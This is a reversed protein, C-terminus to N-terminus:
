NVYNIRLLIAVAPYYIAVNTIEGIGEQAIDALMFSFLCALCAAIVSRNREDSSGFYETVGTKLINFYLICTILLGVWGIELTTKLYGNDTQVDALPHGPNFKVGAGNTTAIGGGIPHTYIYPQIAKRNVERVLYSADGKGEFTSRFRNLTANGYYPVKVAFLLLMAAVAAFIRTQKKDAHLLVYIGVGAVLMINSTRTGSYTSALIMIVVGPYYLMKRSRRTENLALILFLVATAAMDMGFATPSSTTSYKRIQGAFFLAGANVRQVFRQEFPLLGYWQQFCGYLAVILSVWFLVFLYQDIRKRSDFVHYAAFFLLFTETTARFGSFWGPFSHALPNFMEILVYGYLVLTWIMVPTRFLHASAQRLSDRRILFGLMACVVLADYGIGVTVTDDNLLHPIVYIFYNYILVLYLATASSALTPLLVCLGLVGAFVGIGIAMHDALLYGFGVGIMGLLSIGFWNDLKEVLFVRNAWRSFRGSVRQRRQLVQDNGM